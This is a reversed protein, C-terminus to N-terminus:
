AFWIHGVRTYSYSHSVEKEQIQVVLKRFYNCYLVCHSLGVNGKIYMKSGRGLVFWLVLKFLPENNKTITDTRGNTRVYTRIYRVSWLTLGYRLITSQNTSPRPDVWTKNRPRKKQSSYGYRQDTWQERRMKYFIDSSSMSKQLHYIGKKRNKDDAPLRPACEMCSESYLQSKYLSTELLM